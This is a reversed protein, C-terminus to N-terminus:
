VTLTVGYERLMDALLGATDSSDVLRALHGTFYLDAGPRDPPSPWIKVQDPLDHPLVAYPAGTGFEMGYLPLKLFDNVYFVTPRRSNMGSLNIPLYPVRGAIAAFYLATFEGLGAGDDGFMKRLMADVSAAVEFLTSGAPFPGATLNCVAHGAFGAPLGPIRGRLDTVTIHSCATEPALGELRICMKAVLASLIVHIGYRVGHRDNFAQRLQELDGAGIHLPLSRRRGIGTAAAWVTQFLQRWGVPYWGAAKVSRLLEEASLTAPQPLLSQDAVPQVVPEGRHLRGWNEVLTYFADGDMCGHAGHLSLVTGDALRTLRVSLPAQRGRKFGSLDFHAGFRKPADPMLVAQELRCRPAEDVAFPVGSNDCAVAEGRMVRGCLHPYYGLLRAFSEKMAAADLRGHFLWMGKIVMNLCARDLVSFRWEGGPQAGAARIMETEM